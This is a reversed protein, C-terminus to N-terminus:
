KFRSVYLKHVFNSSLSEILFLICPTYFSYILVQELLVNLTGSSVHHTEGLIPNYPAVGFTMPRLTSISWAM